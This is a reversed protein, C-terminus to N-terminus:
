LFSEIIELDFLIERDGKIFFNCVGKLVKGAEAKLETGNLTLNIENREANMSLGSGIEFKKILGGMEGLLVVVPLEIFNQPTTFNMNKNVQSTTLDYCGLFEPNDFTIKNSM